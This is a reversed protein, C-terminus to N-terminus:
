SCPPGLRPGPGGLACPRVSLSASLLLTTVTLAAPQLDLVQCRASYSEQCSGEFFAALLLIVTVSVAGISLLVWLVPQRLTQTLAAM